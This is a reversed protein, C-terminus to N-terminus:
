QRGHQMRKRELELVKKVRENAAGAGGVVNEPKYPSSVRVENLVVIVTSEWRVPLTKSLADFISQAETTVGAGIREAEIEARRIAADERARLANLDIHCKKTDLPDDGHGLLKFNIIHDVKILRM